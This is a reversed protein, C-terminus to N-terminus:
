QVKELIDMDREYQPAWLQVWCELHPSLLAPYLPLIVERWRSAVSQRICGLISNAAKAALACKHSMNLKTDVLVALDKEASSSELQETGLM